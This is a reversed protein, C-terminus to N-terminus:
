GPVLPSGPPHKQDHGTLECAFMARTPGSACPSACGDPQDRGLHRKQNKPKPTHTRTEVAFQKHSPLEVRRGGPEALLATNCQTRYSYISTLKTRGIRFCDIAFVLTDYSQAGMGGGHTRTTDGHTGMAGRLPGWPTEMPGCPTGMPGQPTRVPDGRPGATQKAKSQSLGATKRRRAEIIALKTASDFGPEALKVILRCEM